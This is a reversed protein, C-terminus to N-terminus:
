KPNGMWNQFRLDELRKSNLDGQKCCTESSESRQISKPVGPASKPCEQASKPCEQVARPHEQPARPGSQPARPASKFARPPRKPREQVGRPRLKFFHRPPNREQAGVHCGFDVWTPELIRFFHMDFCVNIKFRTKKTKKTNKM